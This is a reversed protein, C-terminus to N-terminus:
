ALGEASTIENITQTAVHQLNNKISNDINSIIDSASEKNSSVDKLNNWAVTLAASVNIGSQLFITVALVVKDSQTSNAPLVFIIFVPIIVGMSLLWVLLLGRCQYAFSKDKEGRLLFGGLEILVSTAPVALTSIISNTDNNISM